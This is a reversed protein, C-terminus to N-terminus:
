TCKAARWNKTEQASFQVMVELESIEVYKPIINGCLNRVINETVHSFNTIIMTM